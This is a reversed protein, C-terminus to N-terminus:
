YQPMERRDLTRHIIPVKRHRTGGGRGGGPPAWRLSKCTCKM